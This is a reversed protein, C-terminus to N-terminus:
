EEPLRGGFRRQRRQYWRIAEAFDDEKYDPWYTDSFYLETYASQWLLFNSVRQEGSTRILLDPHPSSTCNTALEQDIISDSIDSPDLEGDKVKQAVKRCAQVIDDKGSYSVAVLVDLRKKNKTREQAEKAVRQLSTPLKTIDGILCLRLDERVFEEIETQIVRELLIMLFDVEGKSRYWNESSFAFVTLVKIGWKCCCKVMEKLSRVGAEHGAGTPLGRARAWRSNGDMIVAVHKPMLDQRLGPPLQNEGSDSAGNREEDREEEKEAVAPVGSSACLRSKHRSRSPGFSWKAVCPALGQLRSFSPLSKPKRHRDIHICPTALQLSM